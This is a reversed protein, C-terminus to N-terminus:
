DLSHLLQNFESGLVFNGTQANPAFHSKEGGDKWTCKEIINFLKEIICRFGMRYGLAKVIASAELEFLDNSFDESLVASSSVEM